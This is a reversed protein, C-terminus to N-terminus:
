DFDNRNFDVEESYKEAVFDKCEATPEYNGNKSKMERLEKKCKKKKKNSLQDVGETCMPLKIDPTISRLIYNSSEVGTKSRAVSYYNGRFVWAWSRYFALSISDLDDYKDFYNSGADGVLWSKTDKNYKYLKDEFIFGLNYNNIKFAGEIKAPTDTPWLDGM